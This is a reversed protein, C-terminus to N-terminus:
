PTGGRGPYPRAQKIVLAHDPADFKFEVDMAYFDRGSYVPGFNRHIALLASALEYQEAASLVPQGHNLSSYSLYVAVPTSSAWYYLFQDPLMGPSPNTVAEEGIQANIYFAPETPDFINATIAVGNALEDSFSRHVLVAMAVQRHDIGMYEREEFARLNFLSAWVGRLADLMPKDPDDQDASFSSYLGAGTYSGLDEANTSSRMRVRMHPYETALKLDILDHLKSSVPASRMSQQLAALTDRRFNGDSRFHADTLLQELYRDYGNDQMFEAYFAFPIAFGRPNYIPVLSFDDFRAITGAGTWPGCARAATQPDVMAQLQVAAGDPYPTATLTVLQDHVRLRLTYRGSAFPLATHAISVRKGLRSRELALQGDSGLRGVLFSGPDTRWFALGAEGGVELILVSSCEFNRFHEDAFVAKDGGSADTQGLTRAGSSALADDAVAWIGQDIQWNHPLTGSEDAREFNSSQTSYATRQLRGYNAAKAGVTTVDDVDIREVDILDRVSLDRQPITVPPPRHDNWWQEAEDVSVEVLSWDNAAVTLRAWRGALAAIAPRTTAHRLGMNPTGRNQSLVNVHSLPTQFQATILGAVPTIDNPVRDLVVIERPSVYVRDLEAARLIRVQGITQGLNLPQYELDAYIEANTVVSIDPPLEAARSEQATSAPLFRLQSGFFAAAAIQRFMREIMEPTATDVPALNLAWIDQAEFHTISGLMFRRAPSIYETANFTGLDVVPPLSCRREVSTCGCACDPDCRCGSSCSADVNCDCSTVCEPRCSCTASLFDRAFEFHLARAATNQFYLQYRNCAAGGDVGACVTPSSCAPQCSQGTPPADLSARDILYKVTRAGPLSTDLPEDALAEFDAPCGLRALSAPPESNSWVCVLPPAGADPTAAPPPPCGILALVPLAALWRM